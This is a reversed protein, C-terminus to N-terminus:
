QEEAGHDAAPNYPPPHLKNASRDLAGVNRMTRVFTCSLCIWFGIETPYPKTTIAASPPGRAEKWIDRQSEKLVACVTGDKWTASHNAGYKQDVQLGRRLTGPDLIRGREEM